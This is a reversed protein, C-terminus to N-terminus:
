ATRAKSNSKLQCVVVGFPPIISRSKIKRGTLLDTGTKQKLNVEVSKETHNLVFLFREAGKERIAIEVGAPVKLDAVIGTHQTITDLIDALDRDEMQTGIYFARGKGYRNETVAPRGSLYGETYSALAKAGEAHIVETWQRVKIAKRGPFKVTRREDAGLPFWEEIWIGLSKRLYKPYGGASITESEDVIGSFFTVVLRGGARVYRELNLADSERLLYLRPALVLSYSSLDADPKVFDVAINKEYFYRHLQIAPELYNMEAPKSPLELAWWAAWDIIIAVRAKVLSGVVPELKKLEAGLAVVEQYVRSKEPPAHQVMGGHFKEAGRVSQRWQFFLVGDSGRAVAQLSYLRMVGPAKTANVPRWNVHSTTQEMLVFPRGPKLSRTLDHGWASFIDGRKGPLPDPYSDWSTFDIEKAWAWYDLPKFFNMFNTTIPIDPTVERLIDRETKCVDLLANSTFRRFDLDQCPNPFTPTKRPTSIEDWNYYHQSWFATGWADNLRELSGYKKKLWARFAVTSSPSHCAEVHCAYENNIHWCALAPHAAYREALKRVLRAAYKRYSPSSPSYHQRSGPHYSKGEADMALVDPYQASLWAPPSATATALDVWIENRALLDMIRDLWAFTYTKGDRQLKAWSFIGLSVFNVGARKMLKVDEQWVSEPWQEPNYDGGYLIQGTKKLLTPFKTSM